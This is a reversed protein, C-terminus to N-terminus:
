ITALHAKALKIFKPHQLNKIEGDSYDEAKLGIELKGIFDIYANWVNGLSPINDDTAADLWELVREIAKEPNNQHTKIDQGSIDSIFQDYRHEKEELVLCLKMKQLRTGFQMCGIDIGLEYPMNFRGLEGKKKAACRSIDHISFKSAKIHKIIQQIRIHGSSITTSLLPEFGLYMVTFILAKQIPKYDDDFPCNIFINTEFPM